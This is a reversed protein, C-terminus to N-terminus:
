GLVRLYERRLKDNLAEDKSKCLLECEAFYHISRKLQDARWSKAQAILERDYKSPRQKKLAYSPDLMKLLHGQMFAFFEQLQSFDLDKNLLEMFFQPKKQGYLSALRFRELFDSPVLEKVFELRLSEGGEPRHLKLLQLASLLAGASPELAELLYAQIKHPLPYSLEDCLYDLFKHNEWFPPAEIRFMQAKLKKGLNELMQKDKTSCLVLARQDLQCEASSLKKVVASSMEEACLVLYSQAGSFLGVQVLNEEVWDVSLESGMLINLERQNDKFMQRLRKLYLVEIYPDLGYFTAAGQFDASLIQPHVKYFDWPMLKSHM